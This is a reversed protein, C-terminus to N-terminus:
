ESITEVVGGINLQSPLVLFLRVTTGQFEALNINFGPPTTPGGFRGKNPGGVFPISVDEVWVAPSVQVRRELGVTCETAPDDLTTQSMTARCSLLRDASNPVATAATTLRGPGRNQQAFTRLVAM